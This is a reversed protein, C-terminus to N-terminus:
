APRRSWYLLAGGAIVMPLSLLQGMSVVDFLVFGIHADPARLFETMFRCLGYGLLFAGSLMGKPQPKLSLWWLVVFLLAGETAAQYLSSPHRAAGEWIGFCMPNLDQVARCPFVLGVSSETVRGPLEMNIFNGIRGLGLGIPCLPALFDTVSLWDKEYRRGFLVMAVLVGLFGGHFSMGGEWVRFLYLPDGSFREFGYFLV